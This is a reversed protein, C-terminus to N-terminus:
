APEVRFWLKWGEVDQPDVAEGTPAYHGFWNAPDGRFVQKFSALRDDPDFTDLEVGGVQIALKSEVWDEFLVADLKVENSGPRDGLHFHGEEPLTTEKLLGGNDPTWAKTHLRFEGKGKFFPERDDDIRIKELVVRVKRGKQAETPDKWVIPPRGPNEENALEVLEKARARTFQVQREVIPWWRDTRPKASMRKHFLELTRQEAEWLEDAKEVQINLQFGGLTRAEDARM